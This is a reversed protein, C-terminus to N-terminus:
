EVPVGRMRRPAIAGIWRRGCPSFPFIRRALGIALRGMLVDAIVGWDMGSPRRMFRKMASRGKTGSTMRSTMRTTIRCIRRGPMTLSRQIALVMLNAMGSAIRAPQWVMVM